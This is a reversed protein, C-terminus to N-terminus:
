EFRLADVPKLKAAKWAPFLGFLVGTALALGLGTIISWSEIHLKWEGVVQNLLMTSLVACGIGGLVGLLGGTLGLLGAELLFQVLITQPTAGLARRIGIERTRETVTVLMINMINIGGVLMALMGTGLLMMQIIGMILKEQQREKNDNTLQFDHVGLHRRLVTSRVVTKLADIREGLTESGMLRVFVHVAEHSQNYIADFTTRPVVVRRNWIWTDSGASGLMPKDKLAGVVSWEEGAIVLRVDSLDDASELLKTWMEYGVVCVRRRAAMDEDDIFRGRELGLRYLALAAPSDADVSVNKGEGHFYARSDKWGKSAVQAGALLPSDRLLEEDAQALQRRTKRLESTPPEEARVDILDSENAGQSSRLLAERGGHLLSALLVITGAGIIMGLLTLLM